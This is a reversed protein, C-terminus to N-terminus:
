NAKTWKNIPSSMYLLRSWRSENWQLFLMKYFSDLFSRSRVVRFFASTTAQGYENTAVCSYHGTDEVKVPDITLAFFGDDDAYFKHRADETLQTDDKFWTIAPLPYGTVKLCMKASSEQLTRFGYQTRTVKTGQM